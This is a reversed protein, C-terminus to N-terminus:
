KRHHRPAYASPRSSANAAPITELEACGTLLLFHERKPASTRPGCLPVELTVDGDAPALWQAWKLPDSSVLQGEGEARMFVPM